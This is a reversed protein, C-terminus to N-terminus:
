FTIKSIKNGRVELGAVEQDVAVSDEAGVGGAAVEEEGVALFYSYHYIAEEGKRVNKMDANKASTAYKTEEISLVCGRSANRVDENKLRM